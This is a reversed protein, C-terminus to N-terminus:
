RTGGLRGSARTSGPEIRCDSVPDGGKNSFVDPAFVPTSRAAEGPTVRARGPTCGISFSSPM